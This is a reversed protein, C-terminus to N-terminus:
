PMNIKHKHKHKHKQKPKRTSLLEKKFESIDSAFINVFPHIESLQGVIVDLLKEFEFPKRTKNYKKLADSFDEDLSHYDNVESEKAISKLNNYVARIKIIQPAGMGQNLFHDLNGTLKNTTFRFLGLQKESVSYGNDKLYDVFTNTKKFNDKKRDLFLTQRTTLIKKMM